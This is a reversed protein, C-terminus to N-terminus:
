NAIKKLYESPLCGLQKKFSGTFYSPTNFGVMVSIEAISYRGDELLQCAKDFKINRILEIASEGTISKLKLHLNSRSMGVDRSLDDVSFDVEGINKEIIARCKQLLAEDAKNFSKKEPKFGRETLYHNELRHRAKLLNAIKLNLVPLLFPKSLYDDAGCKLGELQEDVSNRATLMIISIHSTNINQKVTKCFRLGDMGPMVIDTVILDVTHTKLLALGEEGNSATLVRYLPSLGSVLYNLVDRDDDAILITERNAPSDQPPTDQPAKDTLAEPFDMRQTDWQEPTDSINWEEPAYTEPATPIEVRFLSGRGPESDLTIVGHHQEVLLKVLSLGIGSSTQDEHVQYFREFVKEQEEKAIGCGNDQIEFILKGANEKVTLTIQGNNPTYKFANSLLNLLIRELYNIDLPFKHDNIQSVFEYTINKQKAQNRFLGFLERTLIEVPQENVQLKFVGLEARRYDLTQNVLYLLRDASRQIYELQNKVWKDAVGRQLIDRLPSLILTLPTRLEHTINVFFRVKMQNLEENQSLQIRTKYFKFVTYAIGALLLIFVIRAWATQYWAPLIEIELTTTVPSWKGDNNAVNLHFTYTGPRLNSYTAEQKPTTYWDKDFGKLKYRFTNKQASLFNLATFRLAFFNQDAHFTIKETRSINKQLLGTADGPTVERNFLTLGSVAAQPTFPNDQLHEPIFHTVGEVGGFYFVGKSTKCYSYHNFQDSQLGDAATYTRFTNNKTDFCVLGKNTSLWLRNYSDELIGYIVENPLGDATTYHTVQNSNSEIRFLGSRTGAWINRAEDEQICLIQGATQGNDMPLFSQTGRTAPTYAYLNRDTGIWIRKESDQFLHFIPQGSIEPLINYLFHPTFEKKRPDFLQLGNLTGLWLLGNEELLLAYVNNSIINSNSTTFNEVNGSTRHIYSLGGGHTGVWTKGDNVPLIQKINNSVLTNTTNNNKRFYIFKNQAPIYYNVGNDNTGIWLNGTEPEEAISSIVNDSLSNPKLSQQILGFKNQLPHYYDLGCFYSGLWIGGQNDPFITRISNQSITSNDEIDHYYRDFANTSANYINLGDFTGVWLRQEYDLNITRVFDSSIEQGPIKTKHRFERTVQFKLNTFYLGNGETGIWLGKYPIYKIANITYKRFEKVIMTIQDIAPTYLYLGAETGALIQQDIKELTLVKLNKIHRHNEFRGETKNFLLLGKNTALVLTHNGSDEIDYIELNGDSDAMPYNRFCDQEANYYSLGSTTGIWLSGDMSPYLTRVTNGGISLSDKPNHRYVTFTYSDYRNLGDATAIWLHNSKSQTIDYVTTQSLGQAISINTFKMQGSVFQNAGSLLIIVVSLFVFVCNKKTM